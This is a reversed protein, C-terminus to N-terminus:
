FLPSGAIEIHLANIGAGVCKQYATYASRDSFVQKFLAEGYTIISEAARQAREQETFPFRLHGEFYWELDREQQEDSFPNSITIPYEPGQDFSLVANTSKPGGFYEQIRILAM